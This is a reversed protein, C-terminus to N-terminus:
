RAKSQANLPSCFRYYRHAYWEWSSQCADIKDVAESYGTVARAEEPTRAIALEQYVSAEKDSREKRLADMMAKAQQEIVMKEKDAALRIDLSTEEIKKTWDKEADAVRKKLEKISAKAKSVAEDKKLEAAHRLAVATDHIDDGVSNFLEEQNEFTSTADEIAQELESIQSDYNITSKLAAISLEKDKKLQAIVANNKFSEDIKAFEERAWERIHSRRESYGSSNEWEHMRKAFEKKERQIVRDHTTVIDKAADRADLSEEASSAKVAASMAPGNEFKNSAIREVTKLMVTFGILSGVSAVMPKNM